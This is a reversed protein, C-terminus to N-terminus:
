NGYKYPYTKKSALIQFLKIFYANDKELGGTFSDYTKGNTVRIKKIPKTSLAEIDSGKINYWADGKCNFDNWAVLRLKSDDEFLIIMETKETCGGIGVMQVMLTRISLNDDILGTLSFGKSEDNNTCIIKKSPRYSTKDTMEDSISVVILSDPLTSSTYTQGQLANCSLILITLLQITKMITKKLNNIYKNFTVALNTGNNQMVENKHIKCVGYILGLLGLGEVFGFPIPCPPHGGFGCKPKKPPKPAHTSPNGHKGMIIRQCHGISSAM